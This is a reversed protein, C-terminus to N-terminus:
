AIGVASPPIITMLLLRFLEVVQGQRSLVNRKGTGLCFRRLIFSYMGNECDEFFSMLTEYLLTVGHDDDFVFEVNDFGGIV